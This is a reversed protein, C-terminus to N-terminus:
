RLNINFNAINSESKKIQFYLKFNVVKSTKSKQFLENKTLKEILIIFWKLVLKINM